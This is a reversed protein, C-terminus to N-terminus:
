VWVCCITCCLTIAIQTHTHKHKHKKCAFNPVCLWVHNCHWRWPPTNAQTIETIINCDNKTRRRKTLSMHSNEKTHAFARADRLFRRSTGIAYIYYYEPWQTADAYDVLRGRSALALLFLIVKISSLRHTDIVFVCIMPIALFAYSDLNHYCEKNSTSIFHM